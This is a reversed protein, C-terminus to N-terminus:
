FEFEKIAQDPAIITYSKWILPDYKEIHEIEQKETEKFNSFDNNSLDEHELILVQTTNTNEAESLIDFKIKVPDIETNESLSLSRNFYSYTNVATEIFAPKYIGSSTQQYQVLVEKSTEKFKVGLLLKLNLSRGTKGEALKYKLKLVAYDDASVYMEGEYRAGKKDPSFEIVYVMTNNYDIVNKILYNYDKPEFIFNFDSSERFSLEKLLNSTNNKKDSTKITKDENAIEVNIDLSDSIPIIGSKAKFTNDSKLKESLKSIVKNQINDTALSKERNYLKTGKTINLKIDQEEESTYIDMLTDYYMSSTNNISKASYGKLEDNFSKITKKDIFDAKKIEFNITKPTTTSKERQFVVLKSTTKKYNKPINSKVSDIIKLPDITNNILYVSGLSNISQKLGLTDVKFDQIVIKKSDYGLFSFHLTDKKTFRNTNITFVGEANTIVGYDNGIQVTAFAITENTKEDVVTATISQSYSNAGVFLLSILAILNKIESM